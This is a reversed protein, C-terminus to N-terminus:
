FYNCLRSSTLSASFSRNFVMSYLSVFMGLYAKKEGDPCKVFGIGHQKPIFVVEMPYYKAEVMNYIDELNTKYKLALDRGNQSAYSDPAFIVDEMKQYPMTACGSLVACALLAILAKKM